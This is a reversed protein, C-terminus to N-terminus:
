KVSFQCPAAALTICDFRLEGGEAYVDVDTSSRGADLKRKVTFRNEGAPDFTVQAIQGPAVAVTLARVPSTARRLIWICSEGAGLTITGQAFQDGCVAPLALEVDDPGLRPASGVLRDGLTAVWGPIDPSTARLGLGVGGSYLLVLVALLIVGVRINM